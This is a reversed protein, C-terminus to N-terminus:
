SSESGKEELEMVAKRRRLMMMAKLDVEGSAMEQNTALKMLVGAFEDIKRVRSRNLKNEMVRDAQSV